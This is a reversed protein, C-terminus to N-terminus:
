EQFLKKEIPHLPLWEINAFSERQDKLIMQAARLKKRCPKCEDRDNKQLAKNCYKCSSCPLEEVNGEYWLKSESSTEEMNSLFRSPGQLNRFEETTKGNCYRSKFVITDDKLSITVILGSTMRTTGQASTIARARLINDQQNSTFCSDVVRRLCPLHYAIYCFGSRFKNNMWCLIIPNYCAHSMALWHFVTWLYMM